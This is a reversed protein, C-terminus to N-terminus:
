VLLENCKPLASYGHVCQTSIHLIPALRLLTGYISDSTMMTSHITTSGLLMSVEESLNYQTIAQQASPQLAMSNLSKLAIGDKM